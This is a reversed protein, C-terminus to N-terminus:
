EDLTITVDRFTTKVKKVTEKTAEAVDTNFYVVGRAYATLLINEFSELLDLIDNRLAKEKKNM